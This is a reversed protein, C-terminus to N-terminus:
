QGNLARVFERASGFASPDLKAGTAGPSVSVPDTRKTINDVTTKQVKKAIESMDKMNQHAQKLDRFGYKTAHQFLASENLSPDATKIETLQSAVVDELASRAAAEEQRKTEAKAELKAEIQAALEAYTQPVYNPDELPNAPKNDTIPAKVAALEQSKRTYDSLLSKYENAVEEGTLKRGDPTEFLEPETPTEAPEEVVEAPTETETPESPTEEVTEIPVNGNDESPAAEITEEEM